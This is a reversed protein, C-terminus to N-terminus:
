QPPATGSPSMRPSDGLILVGVLVDDRARRAGGEFLHVRQEAHDAVGPYGELVIIAVSQLERRQRFDVDRGGFGARATSARNFFATHIRGQERKNVAREALGRSPQCLACDTGPACCSDLLADVIRVASTLRFGVAGGTLALWIRGGFGCFHLFNATPRVLISERPRSPILPLRSHTESDM